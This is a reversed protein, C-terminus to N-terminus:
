VPRVTFTKSKAVPSLVSYPTVLLENPKARPPVPTAAFIPAPRAPDSGPGSAFRVSVKGPVAAGLGTVAPANGITRSSFASAARAPIAVTVPTPKTPITPRVPASVKTAFTPKPAPKSAAAPKLPAVTPKSAAAPKSAVAPKSTPAPRAVPESPAPVSAAPTVSPTVPKAPNAPPTAVPMPTVAPATPPIPLVPATEPEPTAPTSQSTAEAEAELSAMVAALSPMASALPASQPLAGPAPPLVKNYAKALILLDDFNVNGSYDFDGLLFSTGTKNYNKALILLDDFNVNGSHDADGALFSFSLTADDGGTGDANGDLPNNAADTVGSALLTATYRGDPLVGALTGAGTFTFTATNTTTDYTLTFSTSPVVQGTTVNTVVLDDVTLFPLVNESFQFTIKHPRTSYDFSRGTVAPPTVDAPVVTLASNFPTGSGLANGAGDLIGALATLQWRGPPLAGTLTITATKTAADYVISALRASENVDDGDGFVGNVSSFLRYNLLSTVTAADLGLNDAFTITFTTVPSATTVSGSPTVSVVTPPTLDVGFDRTLTGGAQGDADADLANGARDFIGSAATGTIRLRYRGDALQSPLNLRVQFQDPLYVISSFPISVDDITGFTGDLGPTVLSYFAASTASVPDLAESFTLSISTIPTNTYTGDTAPIPTIAVLTPPATDASSGTFEHAGIDYFKFTGNGTNLTGLDDVRDRGDADRPLGVDGDGADILASTARLGFNDDGGFDAFASNQDPQAWGLLNDAGDVDIFLPDASYSNADRGTLAKWDALTASTPNTKYKGVNAGALAPFIDNYNSVMGADNGILEFGLGSRIYIINNVLQFNNGNNELKLASGSEHYITNHRIRVGNTNDTAAGHVYIGQADNDYVTNNDIVTNQTGSGVMEIGVRNGYVYNGSAEVGESDILIGANTNGYARNHSVVGSRHVFGYTNRFSRNDHLVSNDASTETFFGVRNLFANNGYAEVNREFFFGYSGTSVTNDHAANDHVTSRLADNDDNLYFGRDNNRSENGYVDAQSTLITLGASNNYTLNNRVVLQDASDIYIGNIIAGGVHYATNDEVTMRDARLYMGTDQNVEEGYTTGFAVNGSVLARDTTDDVYIGYLANDVASNGTLTVNDADVASLGIYAGTTTLNRITVDRAGAIELAYQGVNANGRDIVAADPMTVLYRGRISAADLIRGYTAVEDIGGSFYADTAWNSKGLYNRTRPTVRPANVQGTKLLKGNKYVSAFGTPTLTVAVHQWVNPTLGGPISFGGTTSGSYVEFWLNDGTDDRSLIINDSAQGNGFDFIREYKGHATPNVWAEFTFGGSLDDFDNPLQVYSGNGDFTFATDASGPLAGPRSINVPGVITGNRNGGASDTVTTGSAENLRYYHNPADALVFDGYRAVLPNAGNPGQITAGSDQATIRINTAPSYIGTDVYVIDGPNLDYISLLAGLSAMPDAPTTGSNANNGVATTFQDGITSGDNVYYVNGAAGVVFDAKSIDVVAGDNHARIRIRGQSTSTAPNWLFSGDNAEGTAITSWTQGGDTSFDIDVTGVTGVSRWRVLSAANKRVKEGGTFSLLQLLNPKSRSAQATNGEFGLNIRGGNAPTENSFTASPDGADLAPSDVADATFSGGHYSGATSSLHYDYTPPTPSPSAASPRLIQRWSGVANGPTVAEFDHVMRKSANDPTAWFLQSASDGADDVVEYSIDVWGAQTATFTGSKETLSPSVFDNIILQGGVSLRQPGVSYIWFTYTGPAALYIQGSWRWSQNNNPLGRFTNDTQGFAIERDVAAVFPQGNAEPTFTKNRFGEFKLGSNAPLLGTPAGAAANVFRPDGALSQTELGLEARVDALTAFPNQWFYPMAGGIAHILNYDSSYSQQATNAVNVAYHGAGGAWLVNNRLNVNRSAGLIQIADGNPEHITNNILQATTNANDRSANELVIGRAGNSYILNNTIVYNSDTATARIGADANNHITNGVVSAPNNVLIGITNGYARSDRLTGNSLVFGTGNDFSLVDHLVGQYGQQVNFGTSNDHALSNYVEVFNTSQLNFGTGNGWAVNDYAKSPDTATSDQFLFGTGNDWSLNGSAEFGTSVITLGTISNGYTKNDRVVTGPGTSDFYLGYEDNSSTHYAENRLVTPARGAMYIGYNQDHNADPGFGYFVNDTVVANASAADLMYLGVHANNFVANNKVTVSTSAGTVFIGYYAGTVSLNAITVVPADTIRFGYSTTSVNQRDLLATSGNTPGQVTVGADESGIVVNASLVYNGADVYIVDGPNLDYAALVPAVSSMPSDPSTGSNANNGPASTYQDGTLSADNVYYAAGTSGLTFPADSVDGVTPDLSDSVRVLVQNSTASPNLGLDTLSQLTPNWGYNGDNPVASAFTKWTQGGDLSVALDAFGSANISSWTVRIGGAFRFKEGGNPSLVQLTKSNSRSAQPTNGEFGLNVRGGNPSTENSADSSPDGADLAPSNVLDSAFSGGHYSGSTSSLHFDDDLGLAPTATSYRLVQRTSGVANGPTVSETPRLLRKSPMDPTAWSLRARSSGTDDVVDYTIDVWGAQTVTFTGSQETLSPSTFDNIVLQGGVTLRQPGDSDIWFTYTGPVAFYVQGSWRWSQNNNPLGRFANDFDGLGVFRDFATVFPQGNSEPTFTENRFGEFKLGAFDTYGRTGDAGAPDVFRPDGTPSHTEQGVDFRFDALTNFPNQWFYPLAGGTANILNYDSTFGLQATDAVTVAYHGAGGAWFINNKLQLNRTSAIVEIANAASEYVTNNTVNYFANGNDRLANQILIGRVGSDYVLNNAITVSSDTVTSRIGTDTNDYITNGLISAAASDILVGYFNAYARSNRLTGAGIEFGTTNRYASSDHIVGSYGSQSQIGTTNDYLTSNFVEVSNNGPLLIGNTNGWAANDFARSPNAGTTDQFYFGTANDWALNGSAEFGTSIVVLGYSSNDHVRNNRVVTGVGTNELYLGHEARGNIHYAENRLVSPALGRTFLGFEQDRNESSADGYLFNDTVVAGTSAADEIDIGVNANEYIRSNQITLASSGGNVYVGVYGGTISLNSLTIADANGLEFGYSNTAVNGRNLVAAHTAGTPGQIRVGSDDHGIVINTTLGYTGTDVYIVDGFELDYQELIARISAKPTAPTLGDNADNGVALSYEDGSLSGDNVYYAAIPPIVSFTVNSTDSVSPDNLSTVRIVYQDSVLFTAPNLFWTFSGDSPESPSLVTFTGNPGSRSYEIKVNGTFGDSRWRVDYSTKQPLREGGNPNTVLIYKQVSRSAEPTNGYAGLNVYGGKPDSENAFPDGPRGRDIAPSYNADPTFTGTGPKFSGTTSQEHFNDDAGTSMAAGTSLNGPPVAQRTATPTSWLIRANSVDGDDAMEYVISVTGASAVNITASREDNSPSNWDDIILQGNVYLRQPGGSNLHFAYQGPVDFRVFGSYRASWNDAGLGGGPSGNYTTNVTREVRTLAPSGTLTRNGFYQATLGQALQAGLIGDVGDADVFLPDASLSNQDRFNASQWDFLTGRDGQWFGVKGTGTAYLLNYDSTFGGQKDDAIRVGYGAQTWIINNRLHVDDGTAYIADATPEYITNNVVEYAAPESRLIRIGAIRDAYILNNTITFTGGNDSNAYIGYDNSHIVNRVITPTANVTEIGIGVNGYIRSDAITGANIRIGAGNGYVQANSVNITANDHYIGTGVNEFSTSNTITANSNLYIGHGANGYVTLRDLTSSTNGDQAYGTNRNFFLAAGNTQGAYGQVVITGAASAYLGNRNDYAVLNQIVGGIGGTILLGDSNGAHSYTTVDKILDFDSGGEILIGHSANHHAKIDELVLDNSGGTADIANKGDTLTLHRITMGDADDLYLLTQDAKGPIATTLTAVRSPNTPGTFLFGRDTGLGVGIKSTMVATYILPYTGTDVFLTSGPIVEYTRLVNIPNPKPASAIKGTNRNSGVGSPTFEDNANSGDDVYYSSGSEPVTFSETSRDIASPDGVLSIQVRLGYTGFAIGSDSPAWTFEGDDLTAPSINLLFEPGDPTDRYLDIRVQSEGVNGYSDWRISRAKDREWDTYLDPFRLALHARPNATQSDEAPTNGYAGQDPAVTDNVLYVFAGDLYSDTTSGSRRTAEFRFKVSRTGAPINKRAGVLEWRDSTNSAVALAPVGIANGSGDLFTLTIQGTDNVGELLSRIRGGFVAAYDNSDLQAATFGATLLNITQEAFGTAGSDATFYNTGQYAKPNNSGVTGGPNVTWNGTGGEFGANVLLNVYSTPLGVDVVPDAADVTPSSARQGGVMDFVRYDDAGRNVFQPESWEPNVATRGISHLDLYAVDMQLDLVDTFDKTWYFIKGAGSAHLDNYDSVFGAQSDNAVYVDYGGEAWFINNRVAVDSSGGQVRVLDGVPSYFTNQVIQVGAKGSVLVGATTNRYVLNHTVVQGANALIGTGNRAIRNSRITGTFNVGVSNLEILNATDLDDGGLIGSGIVGTTNGYVHQNRMRGTLNVGTTNAYVQNPTSGAVFGLGGTTNNVSAVVGTVNHHIRNNALQASAAYNVGVGTNHIDNDSIPGTFAGAVSLGTGTATASVDNGVIQGSAAAALSIGTSAGSIANDRIAVNTASAGTIAIGAAGGAITNHEVATNSAGGTLTVGTQGADPAIANHVVQVNAGGSVTVGSGGITNNNVTVDNSGTVNVGGDLELNQLVVGNSANVTVGGSIVAPQNGTGLILVGGDQAVVTIPTSYTGADVLIVDGPNLDYADLVAQVTLKPKDPSKGDNLNSGTVTTVNDGSLSGDNVYYVNALEFVNGRVYIESQGPTTDSWAVFPHGAADVSIAAAQAAGGTTSIGRGSADGPLEELFASGTWKKAYLAVTNGTQSAVRDDLWVLHLGASSAALRPRTSRGANNSVGGGTNSGAGAPAWASGSYRAAYIQTPAGSITEQWAVFMGGGYYALSAAESAGVTNSVGGSSMSGALAAWTGGAGTANEAVYIEKNGGVTQTWGVAVKTGDTALTVDVVNNGTSASVGNGSAANAGYAAWQAGTWRKVYVNTNGGTRDLWAVVPASGVMVIQANDALGTASVGVGPFELAAWGGQGGNATPDYKMARIDSASGSFETWVVIPNGSADLTVAPRRSAGVTKSIGGNSGSGALEQWGGAATHRLVYIEYNGSRNDSWVAYQAAAGAVIAPDVATGGGVSLGQGSASSGFETWRGRYDGGSLLSTDLGPAGQPSGGPNGAPSAPEGAGYDVLNSSGAGKDITDAGGEGYLRDNGGQGFLSDNGSEVENGNTGFDGYLHDVAADDGVGSVGHGYLTDNGAGGTVTDAGGDGTILDDGAGGDRTDADAGGSITDNGGAGLARDRGIGGVISDALESGRLVDNGAGGDLTAPGGGAILEDNGGNGAISDAGTGGDLSDDGAGGRLTDNGGVGQLTVNGGFGSADITNSSVGGTLRAREVTDLTFLGGTSRTLNTDSLTFNADNSSVILDIGGAGSVTAAQSWGTVDFTNDGAGGSVQAEEISTLLFTTADSRRLNGDVLTFNVDNSSVVRDTGAGGDIQVGSTTWGSVDFANNSAGGTLRVREVAGLTDSGQGTLSTNTLTQNADVDQVLLDDGAGGSVADNGTGAELYDDQEDGSISDDDAEGFLVDNGTGGSMTDNGTGGYMLDIDAQGFMRDAGDQGYLSDKGDGGTLSDDGIGGELRDAGANGDITDAGDDGYLPDADDGGSLYDNETGGRLTDVGQDGFLQDAGGEGLLSDAGQGGRLTDNGIGGTLQDNAAGGELSDNGADGFLVDADADGFLRDDGDGGVLSDTGDGGLLTDNETEGFLSDNGAGGEISDNGAGGFISDDGDEGFIVDDGGMGLITDNGGGARITDNGPSGVISDAGDTGTIVNSGTSGLVTDDGLGGDVSNV